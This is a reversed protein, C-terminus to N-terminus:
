RTNNDQKHYGSVSPNDVPFSHELGDTALALLDATSLFELDHLIESVGTAVINLLSRCEPGTDHLFTSYHDILLSDLASAILYLKDITCALNLSEM